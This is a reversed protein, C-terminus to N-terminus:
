DRTVGEGEEAVDLVAPPPPVPTPKPRLAIGAAWALGTAVLTAMALHKPVRRPQLDRCLKLDVAAQGFDINAASALPALKALEQDCFDAIQPLGRQIAKFEREIRQRKMAYKLDVAEQDSRPIGRQADFRFGLLVTTKWDMLANILAPGFGPISAIRAETLDFATEIGYSALTIARASGIGDIRARDIRHRRLFEDRQRAEAVSALLAFEAQKESDLRRYDNHLRQLQMLGDAFRFNADRAIRDGNAQIATVLDRCGTYRNVRRALEYRYPMGARMLLWIVGFLLALPGTVLLTEPIGMALGSLSASIACLALVLDANNSQEFLHDPIPKAVLTVSRVIPMQFEATPRRSREITRWAADIDFPTQTALLRRVTASVFFDGGGTQLLDCWPCGGSGKLFAHGPEVACTTLQKGFQDLAIAWESATPRGSASSSNRSFARSLLRGIEPSVVMLTPVNPPPAMQLQAANPSYAFRFERIARELPMEGHGSFRGAFPHRGMFLLHFILVALGFADHNPTREIASLKQGHLEPPTFEPVGVPCGFLRQGSRIQFSDCDLFRVVGDKRVLINKQNLDGVVVGRGHLTALARACNGAVHVLFRWTAEPFRSRRAAPSYLNHIECAEFVRPATIGVVPGGLGDHVTSRPWAAVKELERSSYRVIEILKESHEPTLTQRYLKLVTASDGAVEYVTGEGGSAIENGARLPQGSHDFLTRQM